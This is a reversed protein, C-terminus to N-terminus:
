IWWDEQIALAGCKSCSVSEANINPLEVMPGDWQHECKSPGCVYVTIEDDNM